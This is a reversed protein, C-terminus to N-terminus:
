TQPSKSRHQTPVPMTQTVFDVRNQTTCLFTGSGGYLHSLGVTMGYL